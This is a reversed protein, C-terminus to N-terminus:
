LLLLSLNVCCMVIKLSSDTARYVDSTLLKGQGIYWVACKRSDSQNYIPKLSIYPM